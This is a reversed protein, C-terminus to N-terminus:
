RKACMLWPLATNHQQIKLENHCRSNHAIEIASPNLNHPLDTSRTRSFTCEQWNARLLCWRRLSLTNPPKTSLQIRGRCTTSRLNDSHPTTCVSKHHRNGTDSTVHQKHANLLERLKTTSHRPVTKEIIDTQQTFTDFTSITWKLKTVVLGDTNNTHWSDAKHLMMKKKPLRWKHAHVTETKLIHLTPPSMNDPSHAQTGVKHAPVHIMTTTNHHNKAANTKNRITRSRWM